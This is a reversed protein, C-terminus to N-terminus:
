KQLARQVHPQPFNVSITSITGRIDKERPLIIAALTPGPQPILQEKRYDGMKDTRSKAWNAMKQRSLKTRRHKAKWSKKYFASYLAEKQIQAITKAAFSNKPIPCGLAECKKLISNGVKSILRHIAAYARGKGTRSSSVNKLLSSNVCRWSAEVRNTNNNFRTLTLIPKDIRELLLARVLQEDEKTFHLNRVGCTRLLTKHWWNDRPKGQCVLSHAKCWKHNHKYCEVTARLIDPVSEMMKDVNSGCKQTLQSAIAYARKTLDKSFINQQVKRQESRAGPFFHRSFDAKRIKKYLSNALHVPDQQRETNYDPDIKIMADAFGAAMHADGDTTAVKVKVGQRALDTGMKEGLTQETFPEDAPVTATCNVHGPCTVQEGRGRMINGLHCLKNEYDVAVIKHEDTFNEIALGIAVNANQGMKQRNGYTISDYRGDASINLELDGDLGRLQHARKLDEINEQIADETITVAVSSAMNLMKHWGNKSPPAVGTGALLLRGKSVGISSELTLAGLRRNAAAAKQGVKGSQVEKYLYFTKSIYRCNTCKLSQRWCLGWKQEQNVAFNPTECTGANRHESNCTNFMELYRRQDVLRLEELEELEGVNDGELYQDVLDKDHDQKPRLLKIHGPKGDVDPTEMTTGDQSRAVLSFEKHTLRPAWKVEQCLPPSSKTYRPYFSHHKKFGSAKLQEKRSLKRQSGDKKTINEM